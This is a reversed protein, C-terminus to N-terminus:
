CNRRLLGKAVAARVLTLVAAIGLLIATALMFNEFISIFITLGKGASWGVGLAVLNIIFVGLANYKFFKSWQYRISGFYLIAAIRIGYVFKIFIFVLYERSEMRAMFATTQNKAKVLMKMSSAKEFLVARGLSFWILDSLFNGLFAYCLLIMPSIVNQGALTALFIVFGTGAFFAGLFCIVESYTSLWKIM